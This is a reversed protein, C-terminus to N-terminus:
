ASAMRDLPRGPGLGKSNCPVWTLSKPITLTVLKLIYLVRRVTLGRLVFLGKPNSWAPSCNKSRFPLLSVPVGRRKAGNRAQLMCLASLLLFHGCATIPLYHAWFRTARRLEKPCLALWSWKTVNRFKGCSSSTKGIRFILM